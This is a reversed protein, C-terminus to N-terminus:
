VGGFFANATPAPAPTKEAIDSAKHEELSAPAEEGAVEGATAEEPAGGESAVFPSMHIQTAESENSPSTVEPPRVLIVYGCKKCRVKVGKAGVKDDSIMYQARCSDCVFRM